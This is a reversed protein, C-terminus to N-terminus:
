SCAAIVPMPEFIPAEGPLAHCPARREYVYVMVTEEDFCDCTADPIHEVMLDLCTDFAAKLRTFALRDGWFAKANLLHRVQSRLPCQWLGTGGLLSDACVRQSM